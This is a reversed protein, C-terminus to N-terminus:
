VLDSKQWGATIRDLQSFGSPVGQYSGDQKSAKVIGEIAEQVLAPMNSHDRRLNKESLSFMKQEAKDLLDFVDMTDEYADRQIESSIEIMRRQIYKQVIIRSHYEINAASAVRRTLQAIYYAGGVMDLEGKAKLEHTVTLLDVPQQKQFLDHIASFIKQHADTYFVETKLIDIVESLANQELLLAGLVAEELDIAQPPIKGYEFYNQSHTRQARSRGEQQTKREKETITKENDAM